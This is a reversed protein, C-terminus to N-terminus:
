YVCIGIRKYAPYTFYQYANVAIRDLFRGYRPSTIPSLLSEIDRTDSLLRSSEIPSYDRRKEVIVKIAAHIVSIYSLLVTIYICMLHLHLTSTFELLCKPTIESDIESIGHM